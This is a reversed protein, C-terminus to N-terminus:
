HFIDLTLESFYERSCHAISRLLFTMRHFHHLSLIFMFHHHRRECTCPCHHCVSFFSFTNSSMNRKAILIVEDYPLSNVYRVIKIKKWCDISSFLCRSFHVLFAESCQLDMSSRIPYATLLLANRQARGRFFYFDISCLLFALAPPPTSPASSRGLRHRAKVALRQSPLRKKRQFNTNKCVNM